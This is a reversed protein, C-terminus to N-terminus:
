LAEISPLCDREAVAVSERAAGSCWDLGACRGRAGGCRGVLGGRRRSWCRLLTGAAAAGHLLTVADGVAEKAVMHDVEVVECEDAQTLLAAKREAARVVRRRWPATPPPSVIAAPASAGGVM